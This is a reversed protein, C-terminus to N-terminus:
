SAIILLSQRSTKLFYFALQQQQANAANQGSDAYWFKVKGFDLVPQIPNSSFNFLSSDAVQSEVQLHRLGLAYFPIRRRCTKLSVKGYSGIAWNTLKM